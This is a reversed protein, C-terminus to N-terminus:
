FFQFLFHKFGVHQKRLIAKYGKCPSIDAGNVPLASQEDDLGATHVILRHRCIIHNDHIQVAILHFPMVLRRRIRRRMQLEVLRKRLNSTDYVGMGGVSGAPCLRASPNGAIPRGMCVVHVSLNGAHAAQRLFLDLARILLVGTM